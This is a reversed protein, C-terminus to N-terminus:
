AFVILAVGMALRWVVFPVTRRTRLYGLFWAIVAYGVLGSVLTGWALMLAGNGATDLQHHHVLKGLKLFGAAGVAPLSLLFSFRAAVDRKLGRFLGATLTVGSRSVGPVIALAQATGILMADLFTLDTFVRTQKAQLEAWLLVLALAILSGAIVMLLQHQNEDLVAIRKEFALGLVAVPISGLAMLWLQRGDETELPHGDRLGKLAGKIMRLLDARFYILVSVWTGLQIVVDFSTLFPDERPIHLLAEAIKLHATSSVPLFETLGQVIGLITSQLFTV